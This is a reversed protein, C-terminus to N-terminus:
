KKNRAKRKPHIKNYMWQVLKKKAAGEFHMLTNCNHIHEMTANNASVLEWKVRSLLYNKCVTEKVRVSQERGVTRLRAKKVSEVFRQHHVRGEESLYPPPDISFFKRDVRIRKSPINPVKSHTTAFTSTSSLPIDFPNFVWGEKEAQFIDVSM